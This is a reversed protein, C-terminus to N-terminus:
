QQHDTKNSSANNNEDFDETNSNKADYYHFFYGHGKYVLITNGEADEYETDPDNIDRTALELLAGGTTMNNNGDGFLTVCGKGDSDMITDLEDVFYSNGIQM